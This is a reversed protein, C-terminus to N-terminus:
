KALGALVRGLADGAQNAARELEIALILVEFDRSGRRAEIHAFVIEADLQPDAGCGGPVGLM